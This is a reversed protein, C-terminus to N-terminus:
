ETRLAVVPDVRTARLAPVTCAVVAVGVLVLVAAGASTDTATVQYLLDGLLRALLLTAAIGIAAGAGILATGQGLV